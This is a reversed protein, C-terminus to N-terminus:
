GGPASRQDAFASCRCSRRLMSLTAQIAPGTLLLSAVTCVGVIGGLCLGLACQVADYLIRVTRYQLRKQSEFLMLPLIDNSAMGLDAAQVLAIGAGIVLPILPVLLLRVTLPAFRLPAFVPQVLNVVGGVLFISIVTGPGIRSRARLLAPLLLLFLMLSSMTGHRIGVAGSLGQIMVNYADAGLGITIMLVSGAASFSQGFLFMSLRILFGRKM